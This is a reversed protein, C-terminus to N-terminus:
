KAQDKGSMQDIIRALNALPLRVPLVKKGGITGAQVAARVLARSFVSKGSGAPAVVLVRRSHAVFAQRFEANVEESAFLATIDEDYLMKNAQVGKAYVVKMSLQMESTLRKGSFPDVSVALSGIFSTINMFTTRIKACVATFGGKGM